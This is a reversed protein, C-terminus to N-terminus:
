GKSTLFFGYMKSKLIQISEKITIYCYVNVIYKTQFFFGYIKAKFLQINEKM